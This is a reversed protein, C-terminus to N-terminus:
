FEEPLTRDGGEPPAATRAGTGRTADSAFRISGISGSSIVRHRAFYKPASALARAARM